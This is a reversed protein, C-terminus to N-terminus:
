KYQNGKWHIAEERQDIGTSWTEDWVTHRLEWKGNRHMWLHPSRFRECLHLFYDTDMVPQEFMRSAELFEEPVISLYRFLEDVFRTPFEGDYRKVLAVGEERTIDGSRVEQAADVTARGFGFKIFTTYYHFDDIKDDISSYKSYTGATREPSATFGGKEVAYYYNKQPHWNQYYGFVQMEIRKEKVEDLRLPTYPVLDNDNIGFYKKLDDVNVGGLHINTQDATGFFRHEITPSIDHISGGYEADLEGYFILPINFNVAFRPAIFKQGLIFPQFPHLLNEVALRTLLRHVRGNPTFLINDFGAHMWSQFNRWGWDTYIHPSWTVTLPHMGYKYKLQHSVYFSDKGGSGPVVCDYSGDNRRHRDCIEQLQREREEWDIEKKMDAYLCAHCVGDERFSITDKKSKGTHKYEVTTIARQNSMVCRKCFRVEPPLGYKVPLPSGSSEFPEYHIQTRAPYREM